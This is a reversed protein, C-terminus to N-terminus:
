RQIEACIWPREWIRSKKLEIAAWHGQKGEYGNVAM